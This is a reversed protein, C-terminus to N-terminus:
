ATRRMRDNLDGVEDPQFIRVERGALLWASEVVRAAEEGAGSPDHDAIITLTEFGSLVPFTAMQATSGMSWMPRLGIAMGALCTELGEGIFLGGLADPDESLRVIGSPSGLTKAEHEIGLLRTVHGRCDQWPDGAFSHVLFGNRSSASPKVSLSRDRAGHRPGPCLVEGGAVEGGLARAAARLDAIM